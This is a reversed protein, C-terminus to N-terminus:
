TWESGSEYGSAVILEGYLSKFEDLHRDSLETRWDGPTAKRLHSDPRQEGRRRGGTMREFRLNEVAGRIQAASVDMECEDVLVRQLTGVDDDLLDEYRILPVGADIWSRQIAASRQLSRRMVLAIGEEADLPELAARMARVPAFGDTPHSWRLSYYLSVLTDRLDRIVVFRSWPQPLAAARFEPETVYVTPYVCGPRLQANLFHAVGPQPIVIRDPFCAALIARIWQSGAKYHTVHFLAPREWSSGAGGSTV